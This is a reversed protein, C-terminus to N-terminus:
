PRGVCTAVWNNAIWVTNCGVKDYFTFGSDLLHQYKARHKEANWIYEETVVIRPRFRSLDLGKLIEYDMGEGDVLLVSFDQPTSARELITTLTEVEVDVHDAARMEDFWVNEDTCLTSMMSDPGDSGMFLPLTGPEDSCARNVCRVNSTGQYLSQLRTFQTPHPEILVARWGDLVFPRSNSMTVGDYAGVDVIYRPFGPKLLGRLAAVEGHQSNDEVSGIVGAPLTPGATTSRVAVMLGPATTRSERSPRKLAGHAARYARTTLGILTRSLFPRRVIAALMLQADDSLGEPGMLYQATPTLSPGEFRPRQSAGVTQRYIGLLQQTAEEWRYNLGAERLLDIQKQAKEPSSMLDIAADSAAAADWPVILATEAPLIEGLSAQPAFLCPTGVEAAEFPILGFGEMVTPYLVLNARRFLWAKEEEDVVGLSRRAAAVEPHRILYAGEDESSSSGGMSAGALIIVGTWGHRRQLEDVVQLAFVRNKHRFDNGLCVIVSASDPLDGLEEPRRPQPADAGIGHDTGIYVVRAKGADIIGESVADRATDVSYFTVIDSMALADRTARRFAEWAARTTFYTPNRYAILDQQTVIVREGMRRLTAVDSDSFVQFPRHVVDSRGAGRELDDTRVIDLGPIRDLFEQAYPEISVPVVVRLDVTREQSLREIIQLCVLQTGSFQHSFCSGDIAVSIGTLACRAAHLSAALPSAADSAAAAVAEHYYPYREALLEEHAQKIVDRDSRMGFSAGGHHLVFVDDAAVHVLGMAICRQSFDVEEGYGPSYAEDFYGVLELASRRIYMCHGVASPLRPRLRPSATRIASAAADLSWGDPLGPTPSNRRPVSLITGNNALASATAVISSALAASRMGEYWGPGVVCDSNLLIVDAATATHFLSNANKVFGLNSPQALYVVDGRIRDSRELEHLLSLISPDESCDDAVVVTVEPPTHRLVSAICEQFFRFGRYVPICVACEGRRLGLAHGAAVERLGVRGRGGATASNGEDQAPTSSESSASAREKHERATM